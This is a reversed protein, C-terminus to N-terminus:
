LAALKQKAVALQGKVKTALAKLAKIPMESPKQATSTASSGGGPTTSPQKAAAQKAKTKLQQQHQQRYKKSDRAAQAKEAATQPKNKEKVGREKKAKSKALAQDKKLVAEKKQILQELEQLKQSLNTINARLAAKQQEKRLSPKTSRPQAPLPHVAGPRHQAPPPQAAGRQRGKLHKHQEYYQHAKVPDYRPADVARHVLQELEFETPTRM